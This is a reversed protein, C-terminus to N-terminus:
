YVVLHSANIVDLGQHELHSALRLDDTPRSSRGCRCRHFLRDFRHSPAFSSAPTACEIRVGRCLKLGSFEDGLFPGGVGGSDGSTRPQRNETFINPTTLRREFQSLLGIITQYISADYKQTRKFQQIISIDYMGVVVLNADVLVGKRRFKDILFRVYTNEM